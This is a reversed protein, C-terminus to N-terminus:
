FLLNVMIVLIIMKNLDYYYISKNKVTKYFYVIDYNKPLKLVILEPIKKMYTKDMLKNVFSEISEEGIFLKLNTYQKYSKGVIQWPPDLFIVIHDDIQNLVNVCDDNLIKINHLNYVETNNKLYDFRTKDIEIAYIFKFNKAFSITDGGVGGMADTIITDENKINIM